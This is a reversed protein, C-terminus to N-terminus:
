KQRCFQVDAGRRFISGHVGYDLVLRLGCVQIQLHKSRILDRDPQQVGERSPEMHRGLRNGHRRHLISSGLTTDLVLCQSRLDFSTFFKCGHALILLTRHIDFGSRTIRIKPEDM